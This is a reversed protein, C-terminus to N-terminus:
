NLILVFRFIIFNFQIVKQTGLKKFVYELFTSIIMIWPICRKIYIYCVGRNRFAWLKNFFGDYIYEGVMCGALVVALYTGNRALFM